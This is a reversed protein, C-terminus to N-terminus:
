ALSMPESGGLLAAVGAEQLVGASELSTRPRHRLRLVTLRIGEHSANSAREARQATANLDLWTASVVPALALCAAERHLADVASDVVSEQTAEPRLPVVRLSSPLGDHLHLLALSCPSQICCWGSDPIRRYFLELARGLVTGICAVPRTDPATAEVDSLIWQPVATCIFPRDIRWDGTVRWRAVPEDFLAAFRAQAVAQIERLSRVGRPPQLMWHCALDNGIVARVAGTGRRGPARVRRVASRLNSATHANARAREEGGAPMDFPEVQPMAVGRVALAVAGRAVGLGAVVGKSRMSHWM